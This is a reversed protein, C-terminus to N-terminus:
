SFDDDDANERKSSQKLKNLSSKYSLGLHHQHALPPSVFIQKRRAFKQWIKEQFLKFIQKLKRMILQGWVLQTLLHRRESCSEPSHELAIPRAAVFTKGSSSSDHSQVSRPERHRLPSLSVSVPLSTSTSASASTSLSAFSNMKRSLYHFIIPRENIM